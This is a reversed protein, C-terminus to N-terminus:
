DRKGRSILEMVKLRFEYPNLKVRSVPLDVFEEPNRYLRLGLERNIKVLSVFSFDNWRGELPNKGGEKFLFSEDDYSFLCHFRQKYLWRGIPISLVFILAIFAILYIKDFVIQYPLVFLLLFSLISFVILISLSLWYYRIPSFTEKAM